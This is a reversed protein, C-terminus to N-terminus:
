LGLAYCRWTWKRFIAIPWNERRNAQIGVWKRGNNLLNLQMSAPLSIPIAQQSNKKCLIKKEKKLCAHLAGSPDPWLHKFIFIVLAQTAHLFPHAGPLAKTLPM